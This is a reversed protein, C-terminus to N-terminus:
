IRSKKNGYTKLNHPYLSRELRHLWLTEQSAVHNGDFCCSYRARVFCLSPYPLIWFLRQLFCHGSKAKVHNNCDGHGRCNLGEMEMILNAM